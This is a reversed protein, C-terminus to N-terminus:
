LSIVSKLGPSIKKRLNNHDLSPKKLLLKVIASKFEPPLVALRESGASQILEAMWVVLYSCESLLWQSIFMRYM